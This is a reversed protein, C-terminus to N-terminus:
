VLTYGAYAPGYPVGTFGPELEHIPDGSFQVNVTALGPYKLFEVM